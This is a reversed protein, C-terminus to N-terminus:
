LRPSHRRGQRRYGHAQLVILVKRKHEAYLLEQLEELRENLTQLVERAERKGGDFASTDSPDWQSLDIQSDPKVRYRKM